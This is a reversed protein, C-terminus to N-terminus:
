MMRLILDMGLLKEGFLAWSYQSRRVLRITNEHVTDVALLRAM